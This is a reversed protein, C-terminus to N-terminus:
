RKKKFAFFLILALAGIGVPILIRTLEPTIGAQVRVTPSIQNVNLPPLGAKARKLQVDLIKKQSKAGVLVPVLQKAAGVFSEWWKKKDAEGIGVQAITAKYLSPENLRVWEVFQEQPLTMEGM